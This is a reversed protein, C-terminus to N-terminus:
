KVVVTLQLTRTVGGSSGTVTFNYSGAPTGPSAVPV